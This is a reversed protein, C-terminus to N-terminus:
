RSVFAELREVTSSRLMRCNPILITEYEMEGVQLPNSPAACLEPLLAESILDFDITGYLLWQMLNEFDQDMQDRVTQTQDVPGYSVWFSEMPHIVGVKVVPKGRTLVTNLRSFHDELWSYKEYWPSQYSISAPWDRKAEGEMSMYALHHCRITIGLAAQWDGQLKHGKFDYDWHTVGYLESIVGERGYQRAVSVAQKATSLEKQDCLIDIGPLQMSRYCRMAEGLALIQSYLTRESLYHGTMAIHHKECWKAITDTYSSVFREAVHDHYHYRHVSVQGEPLEWLIEPLIDWFSTGYAKEFTQPFDDTFSLTVDKNSDAFPLAMKGKVHPEDTFIAPVSQGFEKGLAEFYRQHTVKIFREVAKPNLADVYTQDNYWPDEEALQLYAHWLKGAHETDDARVQQYSSLAGNELAIRYSTIYYGKPKHGESIQQQFEQQNECMDQRLTQTLLLHRSRFDLNETVIGGATGSPFRDEDYLWCLMDRKKGYENAHRVFDLYEGSMYVTELGTRPHVHFGGFGMEQFVDIQKEILERTLQCNWSWFPTGRYERTPNRFLGFDLEKSKSKPYLM